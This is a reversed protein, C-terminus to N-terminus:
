NGFQSFRNYQVVPLRCRCEVLRNRLLACYPEGDYGQMQFCVVTGAHWEFHLSDSGVLQAALRQRFDLFEGDEVAVSLCSQPVEKPTRSIRRVLTDVEFAFERADVPDPRSHCTTRDPDMSRRSAMHSTAHQTTADFHPPIGAIPHTAFHQTTQDLHMSIRPVQYAGGVAATSTAHGSTRNEHMAIGAIFNSARHSSSQNGHGSVDAIQDAEIHQRSANENEAVTANTVSCAHSSAGDYQHSAFGVSWKRSKMSGASARQLDQAHDILCQVGM